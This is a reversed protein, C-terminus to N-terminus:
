HEMFEVFLKLLLLKNILKTMPERRRVNWNVDATRPDRPIRLGVRCINKIDNRHSRRRRRWAYKNVRGHRRCKGETLKQYALSSNYKCKM